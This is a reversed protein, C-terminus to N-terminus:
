SASAPPPPPDPDEIVSVFQAITVYREEESLEWRGYEPNGPQMEISTHEWDGTATQRKKSAYRKITVEGGEDMTAIRQVLFIGGTRSGGYYSRFLCLSGDPIDPEMSRGEIRILFLDDSLSRRGPVQVEMWGEAHASMDRGFGGAAARISLVPLHTEFKRVSSQVFKRYLAQVTRDIHGVLTTRPEQVRFTNSLTDDMWHLFAEPGMETLKSPLDEVIERLISAEDGAFDDWDQRFRLASEGTAPNWLYVGCNEGLAEFIRLQALATSQASAM